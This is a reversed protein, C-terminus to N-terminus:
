SRQPARKTFNSFKTLLSNFHLTINGIPGHRQKAVIIDAQQHVQTMKEQWEPMKDSGEAPKQRGIYYEERYIFMVVDADQEISGSERLDALIPRKDDRQEVARSLQSAALVPVGLEKALTKLGRTIESLEQVRNDGGRRGTSLLQLYDVVILGLGERRHLRRARNRLVSMTLAPTEDIFLPLEALEQAVRVFEPFDEQSIAGRRMKDSAIGTEQALLRLALQEASMELSFVAVKGGEGTKGELFARAANFAINMAFATKGMSPRGAIIILDSPHLGGLKHDLDSLGTTVGVVHSDRKFAVEASEIAQALASTFDKFGAEQQGSEALEYLQKEADEVQDLATEEINHTQAKTRIEDALRMLCRRIYLEHIQRGYAETNALSIVHGGLQALYRAGGLEKLGEDDDFYHKLTLPNALNGKALFFRVAQFIRGHVPDEFHEPRLFDGVAEFTSNNHLLAGLLAQEVELNQSSVPV